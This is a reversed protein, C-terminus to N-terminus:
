VRGSWVRVPLQGNLTALVPKVRLGTASVLPGPPALLAARWGGCQSRLADGLASYLVRLEKGESVRVGYPPNTVIWGPGPPSDLASVARVSFEILGAVGAREANAKAARVAGEDRDSALIRPAQGAAAAPEPPVAFGTWKEFAFSRGPSPPLGAARLAAEIAITGAGCFPDILPSRADWGSARLLGAALSERLPAKASELRWGRRHLPAGSADVDFVAKDGDLSVRVLPVPSADDFPTLAAGAAKATKEAITKDRDLRSRRTRARVALKSEFPFFRRWPVKAAARELAQLDAAPFPGYRLYVREALTLRRCARALAAEDGAFAVGGAEDPPGALVRPKLLGLDCLEGFLLEEFGPACSAFFEM